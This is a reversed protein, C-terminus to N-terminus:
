DERPTQWRQLSGGKFLVNSPQGYPDLVKAAVEPGAIAPVTNPDLIGIQALTSAQDWYLSEFALKGGRFSVIGVMAIRLPKYTPEIGPLFYDIESTHTCQFIMEDVIRDSGITRSIPILVTDPPSRTVFNHKYFHSLDDYGSGGTLSAIHNVYPHSVMTSMTKSSDREAFEYYTHNEWLNELDWRPGICSKLADLTRTYSMGAASRMWEDVNSSMATDRTHHSFPLCGAWHTATTKTLNPYVYTKIGELNIPGVQPDMAIDSPDFPTVLSTTSDHVSRLSTKWQSVQDARLHVVNMGSSCLSLFKELIPKELPQDFLAPSYHVAVQFSTHRGGETQKSLETVEEETMDFTVLGNLSGASLALTGGSTVWQIDYGEESLNKTLGSFLADNGSDKFGNLLWLKPQQRSSTKEPNAAM